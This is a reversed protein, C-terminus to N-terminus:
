PKLVLYYLGDYAINWSKFFEALDHSQLATKKILVADIKYKEFIKNWGPKVLQYDIAEKLVDESFATGARGDVFHKFKGEGYYIIFGGDDYNCLVNKGVFHEKLFKVEEIPILKKAHM